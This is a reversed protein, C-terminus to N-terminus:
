NNHECSSARHHFCISEKLSWIIEPICAKEFKLEKLLVKLQEPSIILFIEDHREKLSKTDGGGVAAPANRGIEIVEM